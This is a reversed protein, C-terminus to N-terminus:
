CQMLAVMSPLSCAQRPVSARIGHLEQCGKRQPPHGAGLLSCGSPQQGVCAFDLWRSKVPWVYMSLEVSARVGHLDQCGKREILTDLVWCPGAGWRQGKPQAM